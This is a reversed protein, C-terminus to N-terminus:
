YIFTYVSFRRRLETASMIKKEFSSFIGGKIQLSKSLSRQGHFKRPLFVPATPKDNRGGPFRGLWPISDLNRANALLNKVM